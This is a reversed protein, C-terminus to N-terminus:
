VASLEHSLEQLTEQDHNRLHSIYTIHMDYIEEYRRVREHEFYMWTQMM